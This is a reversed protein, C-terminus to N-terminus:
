LKTIVPSSKRQSRCTNTEGLIEVITVGAHSIDSKLETISRSHQPHEDKNFIWQISGKLDLEEILFVETIKFESILGIRWNSIFIYVHRWELCIRELIYEFLISISVSEGEYIKRPLVNLCGFLKLM